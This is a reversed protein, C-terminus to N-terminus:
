RKNDLALKKLRNSLDATLSAGDARWKWNGEAIGHTNMRSDDSLLLLDQLPIIVWPAESRYLKEVVAMAESEPSKDPFSDACFSLLTPNDHTGSYFIRHSASKKTMNEMESASFQWVNMGPSGSLKILNCVSADLKGLDEAIVPFKGLRKRMETLFDPGPGCLWEGDSPTKGEPIAFYASFARFHDLRIYDHLLAARRLRREWFLFVSDPNGEWDYLPNGWDQGLSSFCDPPVGAHLPAYGKENLRFIERNAWADAGGPSAYIPIDGIISISRDNAYEKIRLWSRELLFQLRKYKEASAKHTNKLDDVDLRDREREPWKQWAGGYVDMLAMYLAYDDLWFNNNRCFELYADDSFDNKCKPVSDLAFLAPSLYPSSGKGAPNLPLVQWLKQGSRALFDIFDFIDQLSAGDARRAPVSSIHCLVGASRKLETYEPPNDMFYLVKSSLPLLELSLKGNQPLLEESSLLELVYGAKTNLSVKELVSVSRNILIVIEENSGRRTFSFVNDSLGLPSFDGSLLLKSHARLKALARYHETLELDPSDWPFPARNFPDECGELGAEDGYYICPVGLVTYQILSLLKLRKKALGYK